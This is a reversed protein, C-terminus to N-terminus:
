LQQLELFYIQYPEYHYILIVNGTTNINEEAVGTGGPLTNIDTNVNFTLLSPNNTISLDFGNVAGGFGTIRTDYRPM